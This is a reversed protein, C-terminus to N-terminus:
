SRRLHEPDVIGRGDVRDGDHEDAVVRIDYRRQVIGSGSPVPRPVDVEDLAPVCRERQEAFERRNVDHGCVHVHRPERHGIEEALNPPARGVGDPDNRRTAGITFRREIQDADSM